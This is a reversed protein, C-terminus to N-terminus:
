LFRAIRKFRGGRRGLCFSKKVLESQIVSGTDAWLYDPIESM